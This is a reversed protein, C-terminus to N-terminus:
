AKAGETAVVAHPFMLVDVVHARGFAVIAVLFAHLIEVVEQALPEFFVFRVCRMKSEGFKFFAKAIVKQEDCLVHVVQMFAGSGLADQMHVSIQHAQGAFVSGLM